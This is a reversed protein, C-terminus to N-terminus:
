SKKKQGLYSKEGANVVLKMHNSLPPVPCNFGDSYACWPNYCLNFDLEVKNNKIDLISLELYRGGGYTTLDNTEDKFPLFLHNKYIPNEPKQASKFVKLSIKQGNHFFTITGYVTYPKTIGSYTPIQIIESTDNLTITSKKKWSQDPPFFDLFPLDNESLPSRANHLFSDKFSARKQLIASHYKHSTNCGFWFFTSLFFIITYYTYKM